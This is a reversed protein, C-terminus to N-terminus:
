KSNSKRKSTLENYERLYADNCFLGCRCRGLEKFDELVFECPCRHRTPVCPCGGKILVLVAWSLPDQGPHIRAGNDQAFKSIEAAIQDRSREM